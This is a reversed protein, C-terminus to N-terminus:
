EDAADSTYLLCIALKASEDGSVPQERVWKCCFICVALWKIHEIIVLDLSELFLSDLVCDFLDVLVTSEAYITDM